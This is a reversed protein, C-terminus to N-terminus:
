KAPGEQDFKISFYDEYAQLVLDWLTDLVELRKDMVLARRTYVILAPDIVKPNSIALDLQAQAASKRWREVQPSRQTIELRLLKHHSLINNFARKVLKDMQSPTLPKNKPLPANGIPGDLLARLDNLKSQLLAKDARQKSKRQM